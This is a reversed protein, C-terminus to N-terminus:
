PVAGAAPPSPQCPWGQQCRWGQQCGGRSDRSVHCLECCQSLQLNRRADWSFAQGLDRRFLLPTVALPLPWGCIVWVSGWEGPISLICFVAGKDLGRTHYLSQDSQAANFAAM